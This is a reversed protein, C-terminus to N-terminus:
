LFELTVSILADFRPAINSYFWDDYFANLKDFAANPDEKTNIVIFLLSKESDDDAEFELSVKPRDLFFSPIKASIALLVPAVDQHERIFEIIEIKNKLEFLYNLSM